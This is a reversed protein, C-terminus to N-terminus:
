IYKAFIQSRLASKFRGLLKELKLKIGFDNWLVVGSHLIFCKRINIHIPFIRFDSVSHKTNYSHKTRTIINSTVISNHFCKFLLTLAATIHLVDM